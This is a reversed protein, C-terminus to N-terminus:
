YEVVEIEDILEFHKINRTLIRTIGNELYTAAILCDAQGIEKGKRRLEKFITAAREAAKHSLSIKELEECFAQIKSSDKRGLLSEFYVIDSIAFTEEENVIPVSEGRLLDIIVTTDIGILNKCGGRM